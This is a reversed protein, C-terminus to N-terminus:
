FLDDCLGLPAKRPHIDVHTSCVDMYQRASGCPDVGICLYGGVECVCVCVCADVCMFVCACLCLCMDVCVWVYGCTDLRIWVFGCMDDCAWPHIHTPTHPHTGIRTAVVAVCVCACNRVSGYVYVCPWM